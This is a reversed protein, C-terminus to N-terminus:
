QDGASFNSFHTYGYEEKHFPFIKFNGFLFYRAIFRAHSFDNPEEDLILHEIDFVLFMLFRANEFYQTGYLSYELDLAKSFATSENSNSKEKIAM